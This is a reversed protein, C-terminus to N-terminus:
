GRAHDRAAGRKAAVVLDDMGADDGPLFRGYRCRFLRELERLRILTVLHDHNPKANNRKRRQQAQWAYRRAIEAHRAQANAACAALSNSHDNDFTPALHM